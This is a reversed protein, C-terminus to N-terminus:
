EGEQNSVGAEEFTAMEGLLKVAVECLSLGLAAGTGEGLRMSLDLLPALGLAQLIVAHGPEVSRHSAILYPRIGPKLRCAVLAAASTVFGDLVVPVRHAAAGWAIGALCAIEFGGVAALVGLPDGPDLSHLVLAEEILRRKRKLAAETLGAGRGVVAPVPAGALVSTLAASATTNGIGMDGLGVAEVTQERHIQEFLRRGRILMESAERRRMASERRLNGTGGRVKCHFLGPLPPFDGICGADVVIVQAGVHRALVNIAAKGNLFNLVMQRTVAQPYASVGEAVVGHDAAATFIVKRKLSPIGRGTMGALRIGLAELAGLSGPPKTLQDWRRRAAEIAAQDLPPILAEPIEVEPSDM